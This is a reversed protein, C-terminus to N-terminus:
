AFRRERDVMEAIIVLKGFASNHKTAGAVEAATAEGEAVEATAAEVAVKAAESTAAEAPRRRQATGTARVARMVTKM